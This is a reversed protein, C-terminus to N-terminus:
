LCVGCNNCEKSVDLICPNKTIKKAPNSVWTENAPVDKTVVSGAGVIANKGITVGPLITSSAGVSAGKKIKVYQWKPKPQPPYKDNLTTVRPGLFVDDEIITGPCLYVFAPSFL